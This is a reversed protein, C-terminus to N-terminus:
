PVGDGRELRDVVPIYNPDELVKRGEENIHYHHAVIHYHHAVDQEPSSSSSESILCHQLLFKGVRGHVTEEGM